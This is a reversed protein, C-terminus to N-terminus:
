VRGSYKHRKRYAFSVTHKARQCKASVLGILLDASAIATQAAYALTNRTLDDSSPTSIGAIIFGDKQLHFALISILYEEAKSLAYSIYVKM